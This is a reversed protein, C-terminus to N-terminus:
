IGTKMTTGLHGARTTVLDGPNSAPVVGDAISSARLLNFLPIFGFVRSPQHSSKAIHNM